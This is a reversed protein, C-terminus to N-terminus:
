IYYDILSIAPSEHHGQVATNDIDTTESQGGSLDSKQEIKKGSAAERQEAFSHQSIDAETLNLGNEDFMERLRPLALEMAERVPAYRSSFAISVQEDDMDIRVEIPGLHAPNLRLEASRINQNVMWVVKEGMGKGWDPHSFKEAINAQVPLSITEGQVTLAPMPTRSLSSHPAIITSSQAGSITHELLQNQLFMEGTQHTTAPQMRMLLDPENLLPETQLVVPTSSKPSEVISNKLATRSLNNKEVLGTQLLLSSLIPLVSEGEVEDLPKDSHSSVIALVPEKEVKLLPKDSTTLLKSPPPSSEVAENLWPLVNGDEMAETPQEPPVDLSLQIGQLSDFFSITESDTALDPAKLLGTSLGKAPVTSLTILGAVTSSDGTNITPLISKLPTEIM